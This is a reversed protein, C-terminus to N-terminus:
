SASLTQLEDHSLRAGYQSVVAAALPHSRATAEALDCGRTLYYLVGGAFTDGAGTTDIPSVGRAPILKPERQRESVLAGEGGLTLAFASPSSALRSAAEDRTAANTWAMAEDENAFVLDVGAEFLREFQDRFGQVMGIDSLTLAIPVGASKAIAQATLAAEFGTESSVLYGEIYLYKSQILAAAKIESHSYSQTIGLHTVLTREGDPTIMSICEGTVGDPCDTEDYNCGIGQASLDKLFFAGTADGAVKCSYFAKGGLGSVTAITNAASGGSALAERQIGHRQEILDLLAVRSAEDVLSMGSKPFTSEALIAETVLYESDVLANGVGYVDYM